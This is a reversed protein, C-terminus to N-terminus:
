GSPSWAAGGAALEVLRKRGSGDSNMVSLGYNPGTEVTFAIRGGDPSWAPGSAIRALRRLGSGDANMTYLGKSSDFAIKGGAPSWVPGWGRAALLRPRGGDVNVVYIGTEQAFALRRGDPSWSLVCPEPGCPGALRRQKSGERNMVYIGADRHFAISQGDPAWEPNEGETLVRLDSGDARMTYIRSGRNFTITRGDPSWDAGFDREGRTLRREGTGDVRIVHIGPECPVGRFCSRDYSLESGDPSWGSLFDDRDRARTLNRLGSGDANVLFVEFNDDGDSSDRVGFAIVGSEASGRARTDTAPIPCAHSVGVLVVCLVTVLLAPRM